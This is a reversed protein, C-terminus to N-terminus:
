KAEDAVQKLLNQNGLLLNKARQDKIPLSNIFIQNKKLQEFLEYKEKRATKLAEMDDMLGTDYLYYAIIYATVFTGIGFAVVIIILLGWWPIQM